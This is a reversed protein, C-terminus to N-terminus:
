PAYSNMGSHGEMTTSRSKNSNWKRNLSGSRHHQRYRGTKWNMKYYQPSSRETPMGDSVLRVGTIWIAPLVPSETRKNKNRQPPSESRHNTNTDIRQQPEPVGTRERPQYYKTSVWEQQWYYRVKRERTTTTTHKNRNMESDRPSGHDWITTSSQVEEIKKLSWEPLADEEPTCTVSKYSDRIMNIRQWM